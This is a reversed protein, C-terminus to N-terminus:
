QGILTQALLQGVLEYGRTNLHGDGPYYIPELRHADRLAASFDFFDLGRAQAEQALATQFRDAAAADTGLIKTIRKGTQDDIAYVPPIYVLVINQHTGIDTMADFYFERAHRMLRQDSLFTHDDQYGAKILHEAHSLGMQGSRWKYLTRRALRYLYLQNFPYGRGRKLQPTCQINRLVQHGKYCDIAQLHKMQAAQDDPFFFDNIYTLVIVTEPRLSDRFLRYRHHMRAIDDGPISLNVVAAERGSSRLESRFTAPITANVPAGWGWGFSDGLFLYQVPAKPWEDDRYGMSNAQIPINSFEEGRMTGRVGPTMARYHLTEDTCFLGTSWGEKGLGPLAIRLLVEIFILTIFSVVLLAAVRIKWSYKTHETTLPMVQACRWCLRV